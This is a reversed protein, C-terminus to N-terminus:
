GNILLSQKHYSVRTHTIINSISVNDVMRRAITIYKKNDEQNNSFAQKILEEGSLPDNNPDGGKLDNKKSNKTSKNNKPEENTTNSKNNKKKYKSRNYPSDMQIDDRYRKITSDSEGLQKCLQSQTMQPNNCRIEMFNLMM